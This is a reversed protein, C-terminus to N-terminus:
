IRNHTTCVQFHPDGGGGGPQNGSTTTTPPTSTTSGTGDICRAFVFAVISIDLFNDTQDNRIDFNIGNSCNAFSSDNVCTENDGAQHGYVAKVVWYGDPLAITILGHPFDDGLSTISINDAKIIDGSNCVNFNQDDVWNKMDVECPTACHELSTADTVLNDDNTDYKAYYYKITGGEAECQDCESVTPPVVTTVDPITGLTTVAATTTATATTTASTTAVTTTVSANCMAFIFNVHSIDNITGDVDLAVDFNVGNSCTAFGAGATCSPGGKHAHADEIVWYGDPLNVSVLGNPKDLYSNITIISHITESNFIDGSDNITITNDGENMDAIWDLIPSCTNKNKTNLTTELADNAADVTGEPNTDYKVYYYVIDEMACDSCGPVIGPITTSPPEM